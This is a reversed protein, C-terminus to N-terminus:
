QQQQQRERLSSPRSSSATYPRSSELESSPSDDSSSLSSPSESSASSSARSRPPRCACRSHACRRTNRHPSACLTQLLLLPSHRYSALGVACSLAGCLQCSVRQRKMNSGQHQQQGVTALCACYRCCFSFSCCHSSSSSSSSSCCPSCCVPLRPSLSHPALM